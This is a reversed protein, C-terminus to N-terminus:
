YVKLSFLLRKEPKKDTTKEGEKSRQYKNNLYVIHFINYMSVCINKIHPASCCWNMKYTHYLTLVISSQKEFAILHTDLTTTEHPALTPDFM